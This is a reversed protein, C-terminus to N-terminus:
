ALSVIMEVEVSAGLPLTASGVAARAHNGANGLVDLLLQSAGNMVKHAETFDSDSNVFGTVKVVSEIQELPGVDRAFIRLLNAACLEAAETAQEISIVSPVKGRSTLKGGAIPVIGSLYANNGSVSVPVYLGAPAPADNLPYGRSELTQERTSM